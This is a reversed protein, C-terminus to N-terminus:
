LMESLDNKYVWPKKFKRFLGMAKKGEENAIILEDQADQIRKQGESMKTNLEEVGSCLRQVFDVVNRVRVLPLFILSILSKSENSSHPCICLFCKFSRPFFWVLFAESGWDVWEKM